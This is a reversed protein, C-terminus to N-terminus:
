GSSNSQCTTAHYSLKVQHIYLQVKSLSSKRTMLKIRLFECTVLSSWLIEYNSSSFSLFLGDLIKHKVNNNRNWDYGSVNELPFYFDVLKRMINNYKLIYFNVQHSEM